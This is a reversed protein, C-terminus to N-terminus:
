ATRAKKDRLKDLPSREVARLAAPSVPADPESTESEPPKGVPKRAAARALDKQASLYSATLRSAPGDPGSADMKRALDRLLEVLGADLGTADIGAARISRNIAVLHRRSAM